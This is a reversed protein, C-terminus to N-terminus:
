FLIGQEAAEVAVWVTGRDRRLQSDIVLGADVLEVRRPRQTSGRMGLAAQMEADTAGELGQDRLYRYVKGRATKAFSLARIAAQLSTESHAQYPPLDTV